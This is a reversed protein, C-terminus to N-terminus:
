QRLNLPKDFIIFDNILCGELFAALEKKTTLM